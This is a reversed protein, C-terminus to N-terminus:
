KQCVFLGWGVENTDVAAATRHYAEALEQYHEAHEKGDTPARDALRLYSTMLHASLNQAHLIKFGKPKLTEQYSDFSFNTDYLLREHVYKQADPGINQQPKLLDDFVMIGGPELVRYAENLVSDKDPVHYYCAQSWIRSFSGDAFPLETASAMEFHLRAQVDDAQRARDDVANQTRVGSLDVGTVHCDQDKCLWIATTGNGCGIDLVRADSGIKGEKIMIRNLNTGAKLFDDGTSEDFVGWHVSGEDDWVVRYIEDQADYYQETATESFKSPM